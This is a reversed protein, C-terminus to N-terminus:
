CFDYQYNQFFAFANLDCKAITRENIIDFLKKMEKVKLLHTDVPLSVSNQLPGYNIQDTTSVAFIEVDKSKLNAIQQV